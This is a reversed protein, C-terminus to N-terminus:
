CGRRIWEEDELYDIYDATDEGEDILRQLSGEPAQGTADHWGELYAIVSPLRSFYNLPDAPKGDEGDMSGIAWADEHDPAYAPVIVIDRNSNVKGVCFIHTMM